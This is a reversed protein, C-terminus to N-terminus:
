NREQLLAAQLAMEFRELVLACQQDDIILPPLLRIVNGQRGGRELLLGHDFCQKQIAVALSPDGPHSNLRDPAQREDVIEIGLMLGRGRVQGLAPFRQQLEVLRTKLWNGRREAQAPLNQQQLANLTALGTAMAMQNGRFTGTHAGPQWADFERKFGLVALPLGGGVAKSMVIVDPEIGAHEFAFMKGTRGFGAQVEDVILLIGHRQTVERIRRLWCTPACNVGGEGQVAELIVAAPLSVGSEVDEIFQTFYHSLAEVGAEGGIGLPCRYEHPYPMFQVGPMLSAVADKPGTNGTVALAGHTMGHYGGSFSIINSRGTFTKALKLAAEVADAGSPGCFQLCYDRGQGPLLSLLKESFADKQATTLDLTHMPMGSAMFHDISAIIDEHNHGLALTGAGALCDLYTRGEVDTVWVGRAKAIALPLKRPYSRVNSEFQGQRGLYHANDKPLSEIRAVSQNLM